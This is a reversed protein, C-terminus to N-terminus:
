YYISKGCNKECNQAFEQNEALKYPNEGMKM